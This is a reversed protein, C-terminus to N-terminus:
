KENNITNFINQAYPTFREKVQKKYRERDESAIRKSMNLYDQEVYKCFNKIHNPLEVHHHLKVTNGINDYWKFFGKKRRYMLWLLNVTKGLGMENKPIGNDRKYEKISKILDFDNTFIMDSETELAAVLVKYDNDEKTHIPKYLRECVSRIKDVKSKEIEIKKFTPESEIISIDSNKCEEVVSSPMIIEIDKEDCFDIFKELLDIKSHGLHYIINADLVIKNM